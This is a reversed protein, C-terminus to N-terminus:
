QAQTRFHPSELGDVFGRVLNDQAEPTMRARVKQEALAVALQASYRKLDMRAAKGAAVIEQEAQQRIKALEGTTRLHTREAEAEAEAKSETRLAAIEAELNALRRDVAAARAEADSRMAEADSMDQRIKRSRGAFFPGANKAVAWGLGAALLAFNAWKWGELEGHEGKAPEAGTEAAKETKSEQARVIAPTVTAITLAVFLTAIPKM